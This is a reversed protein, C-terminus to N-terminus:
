RKNPLFRRQEALQQVVGVRVDHVFGGPCDVVVFTDGPGGAGQGFGESLRRQGELCRTAGKIGIKAM